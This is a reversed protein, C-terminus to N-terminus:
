EDGFVGFRGLTKAGKNVDSISVKSIDMDKFEAIKEYNNNFTSLEFLLPSFNTAIVRNFGSSQKSHAIFLGAEKVEPSASKTYENLESLSLEKPIKSQIPDSEKNTYPFWDFVLETEQNFNEYLKIHKLKM